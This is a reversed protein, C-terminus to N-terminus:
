SIDFTDVCGASIKNYAVLSAIAFRQTVYLTTFYPSISSFPTVSLWVRFVEISQKSISVFSKLYKCFKCVFFSSVWYLLRNKKYLFSCLLKKKESFSAPVLAFREM